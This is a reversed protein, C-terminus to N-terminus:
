KKKSNQTQHAIEHDLCVDYVALVMRIRNHMDKNYKFGFIVSFSLFILYTWLRLCASQCLTHTSAATLFNIIPILAFVGSLLMSLGQVERLREPKKDQNRIQIYYVCHAFYDSCQQEANKKNDSLSGLFFHANAKEKYRRFKESNGVINDKILCNGIAKEELGLVRKYFCESITNIVSGILFSAAILSIFSPILLFTSEGIATSWIVMIQSSSPYECIWLGLLFVFGGILLNFYDFISFKEAVSDM